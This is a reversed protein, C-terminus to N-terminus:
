DKHKAHDHQAYSLNSHRDVLEAMAKLVRLTNKAGFTSYEIGRSTYNTKFLRVGYAGTSLKVLM